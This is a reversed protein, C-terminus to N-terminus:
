LEFKYESINDEYILLYDLKQLIVIKKYINENMKLFM